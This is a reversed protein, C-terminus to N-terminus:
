KGALTEGPKPKLTPPSVQRREVSLRM